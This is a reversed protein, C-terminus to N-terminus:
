RRLVELAGLVSGEVDEVRGTGEHRLDVVLGFPVVALSALEDDDPWLPWWSTLPVM